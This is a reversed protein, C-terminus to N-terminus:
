GGPSRVPRLNWIGKEAWVQCTGPPFTKQPWLPLGWPIPQAWTHTFTHMHTHTFMHSYTHTHLHSFAHTHMHIHTHACAYTYVHPLSPSPLLLHLDASHSSVLNLYTKHALKRNGKRERSLVLYPGHQPRWQWWGPIGQPHHELSSKRSLPSGQALM